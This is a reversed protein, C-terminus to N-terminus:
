EMAYVVVWDIQVNGEIADDPEGCTVCTETQLVHKMPNSPVNTTSTGIEEGDLIFVVKGPTWEITATHWETYTADTDFGEQGGDPHAYHMFASITGDLAGEPFDIEGDDPTQDSDPWLLWATKYSPIAEAKFRVSYRGYSQGPEAGYLKPLVAAVMHVGDETHLHKNLMGNAVSVVKSPFYTGNGSTDNWGDPYVRWKDGYVEGPFGGVQVPKKFNERFIQKWGPLDGVPMPEGSPERVSEPSAVKTSEDSRAEAPTGLSAASALAVVGLIPVLLLNRTRAM